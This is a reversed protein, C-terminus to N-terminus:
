NLAIRNLRNIFRRGIGGYWWIQTGKRATLNVAVLTVCPISGRVNVMIEIVSGVQVANSRFYPILGWKKAPIYFDKNKTRKITYIYLFYIFNM